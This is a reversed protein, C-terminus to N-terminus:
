PLNGDLAKRVVSAAVIVVSGFAVFVVVDVLLLITHRKEEPIFGNAELILTYFIVSHHV